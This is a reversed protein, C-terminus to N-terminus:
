NYYKGKSHKVDQKLEHGDEVIGHATGLPLTLPGQLYREPHPANFVKRPTQGVLVLILKISLSYHNRSKCNHIIGIAAEKELGDEMSDLDSLDKLM